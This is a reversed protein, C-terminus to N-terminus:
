PGASVLEGVGVAVLLSGAILASWTAIRYEGAGAMYAALGAAPLASLALFLRITRAITPADDTPRAFALAVDVALVFLGLCAITAM